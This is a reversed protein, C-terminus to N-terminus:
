GRYPNALDNWIAFMMLMMVLAFGLRFAMEQTSEKLPRGRIAEIAYFVLHGGDLLPVPFLNLLGISISIFATLTILGSLGGTDAVEKSIQAIKIPGGLEKTDGHGTFLQAIFSLAQGIVEGTQEVGLWLARVPNEPQLTGVVGLTGRVQREGSETAVERAEPTATLTLDQGDRRVLVSLTKGASAGVIKQLDQFTAIATSDIALIVDGTHIGAREAPSGVTVQDVRPTVTQKGYISFIGAFILIALVFNAIPGALIIAARQGVSKHFFSVKREEESATAVKEFDPVSAANADGFFKVYGGLPLAALRWRTGHRDTFGLLEPGFGVSFALVRVGCLRGVIFHGFEHFFVVISLVFLFPLLYSIFSVGHAGFSTLFDM